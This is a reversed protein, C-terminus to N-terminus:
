EEPETKQFFERNIMYILKVRQIYSLSKVKLVFAKNAESLESKGSPLMNYYIYDCVDADLCQIFQGNPMVSCICNAVVVREDDSFDPLVIHKVGKEFTKVLEHYDLKSAKELLRKTDFPKGENIGPLSDVAEEFQLSLLRSDYGVSGMLTCLIVIGILTIEDKSLEPLNTNQEKNVKIIM